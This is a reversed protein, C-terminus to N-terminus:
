QKAAAQARLREEQARLEPTFEAGFDDAEFVKRIEVEGDAFPARKMWELAEEKSKVEILWFGAVLEKTEAFPGDTVLRKEGSYKIRVGQSSAQLGEAALMVGTKVMEENFQGMRTLMEESPFNGAESDKTAKVLVMFKMTKREESNPDSWKSSSRPEAFDVRSTTRPALQSELHMLGLQGAM